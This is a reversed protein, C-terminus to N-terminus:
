RRGVGGGDRLRERVKDSGSYDGDSDEEEGDEMKEGTEGSGYKSCEEEGKGRIM